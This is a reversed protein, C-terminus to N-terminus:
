ATNDGAAIAQRQASALSRRLLSFNDDNSLEPTKDFWKPVLLEASIGGGERGDARRIRARVFLQPAERLTVVGFRFPLRLTVPREFCEVAILRLRPAHSGM